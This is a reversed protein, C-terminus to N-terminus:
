FTHEDHTGIALNVSFILSNLNQRVMAEDFLANSHTYQLRFRSFENANYEVMATFQNMNQPLNLNLGEEIVDNQYITDYRVGTQWHHDLTYILQSYYGAQKKEMNASMITRAASDNIFNIGRMARYLWESQWTLSSSTDFNHKLIFDIGYLNSKGSFAYPIEDNFHNILSNGHAISAGALITTDGINASTKLTGVYLSPQSASSALFEEPNYPNGIAAQGFMSENKGQLAEIGFMLYTDTPAIWQLQAGIENIGHTGLFAEYVLPKDSFSWEHHHQNNLYGFDSLFKGGKIHLNYPLNHISVYAEEIEVSTESFHLLTTVDFYPDIAGQLAIEAYNLNFGNQGNLATHNHGDDSHTGYLGHAIGPLELHTLEEDKKSRNVYSADLILSLDIDSKTEHDAHSILDQLSEVSSTIPLNSHKTSNELTNIKQQVSNMMQQMQEMQAKLIQLESENALLTAASITYLLLKKM